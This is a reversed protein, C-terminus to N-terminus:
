FADKIMFLSSIVFQLILITTGDLATEPQQPTLPNFFDTFVGTELTIYM